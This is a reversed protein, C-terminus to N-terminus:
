GFFYIFLYTFMFLSNGFGLFKNCVVGSSFSRVSSWPPPPSCPIWSGSRIKNCTEVWFFTMVREAKRLRRTHCIGWPSQIYHHGSRTHHHRSLQKTDRRTFTGSTQVANQTSPLDTGRRPGLVSSRGTDFAMFRSSSSWSRALWDFTLLHLLPLLFHPSWRLSSGYGLDVDLQDQVPITRVTTSTLAPRPFHCYWTIDLKRSKKCSCLSMSVLNYCIRWFWNYVKTSCVTLIAFILFLFKGIVDIIDPYTYTVPYLM